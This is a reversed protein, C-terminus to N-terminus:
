SNVVWDLLAMRVYMGNQAQEFYKARPDNDLDSSIETNRPLPHMLICNNKAHVMNEKNLIFKDYESELDSGDSSNIREKQLRTWYIVDAAPLVRDLHNDIEMFAISNQKLFARLDEKIALSNPSFLIFQVGQYKSLLKILSRATRGNKLDGGILITLNNLRGKNKWITYLDLLAQTPHEGPGDGANIIPVNSVTAARFAAGEESHRLVIADPKYLSLVKISDELSEGKIASSFYSASETDEVAMGLHFAAASFSFRTRTSPEYFINFLLKGELKRKLLVKGMSNNLKEEFSKANQFLTLLIDTSFQDSSIIHKM